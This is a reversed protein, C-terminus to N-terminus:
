KVCIINNQSISIKKYFYCFNGIHKSQLLLQFITNDDIINACQKTCFLPKNLYETM